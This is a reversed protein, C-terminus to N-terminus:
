RSFHSSTHCRRDLRLHRAAHSTEVLRGLVSGGKVSFPRCSQRGKKSRNDKAHVPARAEDYGAGKEFERIIEMSSLLTSCSDPGLVQIDLVGKAVNRHQRLLDSPM